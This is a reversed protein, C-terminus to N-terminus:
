FSSSLELNKEPNDCQRWTFHLSVPSTGRRFHERVETIIDKNSVPSSDDTAIWQGIEETDIEAPPDITQQEELQM